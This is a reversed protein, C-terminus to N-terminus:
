KVVLPAHAVPQGEHQWVWSGDNTSRFYKPSWVINSAARMKRLDRERGEVLCKADRALDWEKNVISDTLAAWVNISEM